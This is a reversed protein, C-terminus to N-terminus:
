HGLLLYCISQFKIQVFRVGAYPFSLSFRSKSTATTVVKIASLIFHSMNELMDKSTKTSVVDEKEVTRTLSRDVAVQCPSCYCGMIESAVEAERFKYKQGYLNFCSKFNFM